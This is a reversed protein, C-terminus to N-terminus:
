RAATVDGGLWTQGARTLAERDSRALPRPFVIVEAVFGDWGRLNTQYRDNGLRLSEDPIIEPLDATVVKGNDLPASDASRQGNVYFV